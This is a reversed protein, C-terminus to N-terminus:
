AITCKWDFNLAFVKVICTIYNNALYFQGSQRKPWNIDNNRPTSRLLDRQNIQLQNVVMMLLMDLLGTMVLLNAATIARHVWVMLLLLCGSVAM